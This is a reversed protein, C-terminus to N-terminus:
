RGAVKRLGDLTLMVDCDVYRIRLATDQSEAKQWVDMNELDLSCIARYLADTTYPDPGCEDGNADFFFFPTLQTSTREDSVACAIGAVGPIKSMEEFLVVCAAKGVAQEALRANKSAINLTEEATAM